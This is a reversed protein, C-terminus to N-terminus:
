CSRGDSNCAGDRGTARTRVMFRARGPDPPTLTNRRRRVIGLATSAESDVIALPPGIETDGWLAEDRRKRDGPTWPIRPPGWWRLRV